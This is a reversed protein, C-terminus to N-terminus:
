EFRGNSSNGNDFSDERRNFDGFQMSSEDATPGHDFDNPPLPGEEITITETLFPAPQVADATATAPM